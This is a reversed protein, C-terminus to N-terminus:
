PKHSEVVWPKFISMIEKGTALDGSFATASGAAVSLILAYQNDKKDLYGKLFGAVMSDGAGVSNVAKGKPAATINVKGNENILIAGNEAMSVLVNRAGMTQLRTACEVIEDYSKLQKGAIKSLEALNPKILFPKYKLSNLLLEDEADVVTKIDVACIKQLIKEYASTNIGQPVNGSLVLIDGNKLSSLKDLLLAFDSEDVRPGSGNVESETEGKIKVNIRSNGKSLRVFDTKIGIEELGDEIAKGTFGAVFGTAVSDIGMNKLVRSVNIGKGGFYIEEKKSRNVTGFAFSEPHMIYDIAPNLTVTYIM